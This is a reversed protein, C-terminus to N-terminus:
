CNANGLFRDFRLFEGGSCGLGGDKHNSTWTSRWKGPRKAFRGFRKVRLLFQAPAQDGRAGGKQCSKADLDMFLDNHNKLM